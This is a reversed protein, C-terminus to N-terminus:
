VIYLIYDVTKSNGMSTNLISWRDYHKMALLFAPEFLPQQVIYLSYSPNDLRRQIREFSALEALPQQLSYADHFLLVKHTEPEFIMTWNNGIEMSERNKLHEIDLGETISKNFRVLEIGNKLIRCTPRSWLDCMVKFLERDNVPDSIVLRRDYISYRFHINFFRIMSVSTPQM